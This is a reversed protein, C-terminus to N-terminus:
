IGFRTPSGNMPGVVRRVEDILDRLLFPKSIVSVAGLESAASSLGPAASLLIVPPAPGSREELASQFGFADMVPMMVDLIVVDAKWDDLKELADRGNWAVRVDFGDDTLVEGLTERLTPDDDVVLVRRAGV